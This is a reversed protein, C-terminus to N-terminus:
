IRAALGVIRFSMTSFGPNTTDFSAAVLFCGIGSEVGDAVIGRWSTWAFGGVRQGQALDVDLYAALNDFGPDDNANRVSWWGWGELLVYVALAGEHM